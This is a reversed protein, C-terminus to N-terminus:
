KAMEATLRLRLVFSTGDRKVDIEALCRVLPRLWAMTTTEGCCKRGDSKWDAVCQAFADAHALDRAEVHLVAEADDGFHIGGSVYKAHDVFPTLLREEIVDNTLPRRHLFPMVAAAFWVTQKPDVANLRNLLEEDKLAPQCGTLAEHLADRVRDADNGCILTQGDTALTTEVNTADTCRYFAFPRYDTNDLCILWPTAIKFHDRDFRGEIWYLPHEFSTAPYYVRLQDVDAEPDCRLLVPLPGGSRDAVLKDFTGAEKLQHVIPAAHLERLNVSLVATTDAPTYALPTKVPATETTAPLGYKFLAALLAAVTLTVAVRLVLRMVIRRRPRKAPMPRPAAAPATATPTVRERTPTTPLNDQIVPIPGPMEVTPTVIAAVAEPSPPTKGVQVAFDEQTFEELAHAAEAASPFRDEPRKAMLRAVLAALAEPVDARAARLSPPPVSVHQILKDIGAFEAFPPSGALLHFLTCGLSYLDARADVHHSDRSQEPAVYDLTGVLVGERTIQGPQGHLFSCSLRAMGLDLLKITGGEYLSATARPGLLNRPQATSRGRGEPPKVFLNAPKVDRHVLGHDHAHHLGLLAQRAYNCAQAVPLPGALDLLRGLDVGEMFEMALFPTDDIDGADYLTVINPHALRAAAAAERRFRELMRANTLHQKGIVKLAVTRQLPAHRAKFVEGMGGEGLRELLHYPGLRLERGKGELLRATQFATLWGDLVLRNALQHPDPYQERLARLADFREPELLRAEALTAVLDFDTATLM